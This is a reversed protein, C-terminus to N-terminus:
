RFSRRHAALAQPSPRADVSTPTSIQKGALSEYSTGKLAASVQLRHDDTVGLLGEDFLRHLDVRLCLGNQAHNSREDVYPQIHAAELLEVVGEGVVCCRYGYNKLVEQRFASQGKRDKRLTSSHRLAPGEVLAFHKTSPITGLAKTIPMALPDQESFYKLKVIQRAFRHGHEEPSLFADNDLAVVDSLEICGIVPDSSPRYGKSRRQAFANIKAVLADRSPTGNGLGYTTWANEATMDSYRVFLGFGGIKRIPAKLMFYLRDGPHLGKVHWPTPTWFNVVRGPSGERIDFFWDLDTAAIAFM